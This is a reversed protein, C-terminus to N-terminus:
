SFKQSIILGVEKTTYSPTLPKQTPLITGFNSLKVQYVTVKRVICNNEDEDDNLWASKGLQNLELARNKSKEIKCCIRRQGKRGEM